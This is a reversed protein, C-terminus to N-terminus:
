NDSDKKGKYSIVIEYDPHKKLVRMILSDIKDIKGNYEEVGKCTILVNEIIEPEEPEEETDEPEEETDEPEEEPEEESSDPLANDLYNKVIKKIERVSMTPKIELQEIEIDTLETLLSLKSTSFDKYKEDFVGVHHGKEDRKGFRDAIAIFNYTSTKQFDFQKLAYDAISDCGMAKFTHTEYIWFLNFVIKEMNKDLASLATKIVKSHKELEKLMEASYVEKEVPPNMVGTFINKNETTKNAM